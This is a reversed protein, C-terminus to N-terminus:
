GWFKAVSQADFMNHGDKIKQNDFSPQYFNNM